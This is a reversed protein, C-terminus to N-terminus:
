IHSSLSSAMLMKRARSYRSLYRSEPVRIPIEDQICMDYMHVIQRVHYHPHSPLLCMSPVLGIDTIRNYIHCESKVDIFLCSYTVTHCDDEEKHYSRFTSRHVIADIQLSLYEGRM